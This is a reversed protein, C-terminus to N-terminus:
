HVVNIVDILSMFVEVDSNNKIKSWKKRQTRKIVVYTCAESGAESSTYYEYKGIDCVYIPM